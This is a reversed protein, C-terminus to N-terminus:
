SLRRENKAEGRIVVMMRLRFNKEFSEEPLVAIGYAMYIKSFKPDTTLPKRQMIMGIASEMHELKIEVNIGDVFIRIPPSAENSFVSGGPDIRIAEMTEVREPVAGYQSQVYDILARTADPHTYHRQIKSEMSYEVFNPSRIIEDAKKQM